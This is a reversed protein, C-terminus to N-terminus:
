VRVPTGEPQNVPVAQSPQEQQPQGGGALTQILVQFQELLGGAIQAAEPPAGETKGVIEALTSLGEGINAVFKGLEDAGGEQGGGEQPVQGQGQDVPVQGMEGVM